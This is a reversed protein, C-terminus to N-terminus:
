PALAQVIQDFTDIPLEGTLRQLVRGGADVFVFGPFNTMGLAALAGSEEDDTLTPATWGERELWASPPYNPQIPSISTSIGVLRVGEPMGASSLYDVLRPVEAQCHPCWHAVIVIAMPGDDPGITLASGDVGTGALTPITLGVAPDSDEGITPLADGTVAIPTTAPEAIEESGGSLLIAIIAAVIAVAALGGGIIWPARSAPQAASRKTMGKSRNRRTSM